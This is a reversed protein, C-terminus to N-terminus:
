SIVRKCDSPFDEIIHAKQRLLFQAEPPAEGTSHGRITLLNGSGLAAVLEQTVGVYNDTVTDSIVWGGEIGGVEVSYVRDDVSISTKAGSEGLSWRKPGELMFSYYLNGSPTRHCSLEVGFLGDGSRISINYQYDTQVSNKWGFGTDSKNSRNKSNKKQKLAETAECYDSVCQGYAPDSAGKSNALCRWVCRQLEMPDEEAHALVVGLLALFVTGGVLVLKQM